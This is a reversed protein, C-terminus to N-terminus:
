HTGSLVECIVKWCAPAMDENQVLANDLAIMIKHQNMFGIRPWIDRAQLDLSNPWDPLDPSYCIRCNDETRVDSNNPYRWGRGDFAYGLKEAVQEQEKSMWISGSLRSIIKQGPKVGEVVGTIGIELGSKTLLPNIM